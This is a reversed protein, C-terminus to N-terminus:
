LSKSLELLLEMKKVDDDVDLMERAEDTDIIESQHMDLVKKNDMEPPTVDIGKFEIESPKIGLEKLLPRLRDRMRRRNPQLTLTEFAHMHAHIETGGGLVLTLDWYSVLYVMLLPLEKRALM